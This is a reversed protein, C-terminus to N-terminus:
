CLDDDLPVTWFDPNRAFAVQYVTFSTCTKKEYSISCVTRKKNPYLRRKRRIVALLNVEM